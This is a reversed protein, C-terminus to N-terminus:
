EREKRKLIRILEKPEAILKGDLSFAFFKPLIHAM